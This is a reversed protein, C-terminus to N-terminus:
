KVSLHYHLIRDGGAPNVIELTLSDPGVYGPDSQYFAAMGAQRKLNCTYRQNGLPYDPYYDGQVITVTGHGPPTKVRIDAYAALSCDANLDFVKRLMARKGSAVSFDLAFTGSQPAVVVPVIIATNTTCGALLLAGLLTAFSKMTM